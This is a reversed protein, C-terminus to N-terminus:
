NSFIPKWRIRVINKQYNKEIHDSRPGMHKLIFFSSSQESQQDSNEIWDKETILLSVEPNLPISRYMLFTVKRPAKRLECKKTKSLLSTCLLNERIKNTMHTINNNQSLNFFFNLFNGVIIIWGVMNISRIDVTSIFRVLVSKKIM